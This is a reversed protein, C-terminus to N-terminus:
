RRLIGSERHLEVEGVRAVFSVDWSLVDAKGVFECESCVAGADATAVKLTLM